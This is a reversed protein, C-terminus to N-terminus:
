EVADASDSLFAVTEESLVRAVAEVFARPRVGPLDERREFEHRVLVERSTLDILAFEGAVRASLPEECCYHALEDVRSVIQYRGEANRGQRVVGFLGSWEVAERVLDAVATPPSVAWLDASRYRVLPGELRQLLQRRDYMPAVEAEQIVVAQRRGAAEDPAPLDTSRGAVAADFELVYYNTPSRGQQSLCGSLLLFTITLVVIAGPRM